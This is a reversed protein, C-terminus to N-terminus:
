EQLKEEKVVNRDRGIKRGGESKPETTNFLKRSIFKEHMQLRAEFKLDDIFKRRRLLLACSLLACVFARLCFRATVFARLVFGRRCFRATDPVVDFERM